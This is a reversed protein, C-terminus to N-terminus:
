KGSRDDVKPVNVPKLGKEIWDFGKPDTATAQPQVQISDPVAKLEAKLTEIEKALAARSEDLKALDEEKREITRALDTKKGTALAEPHAEAWVNVVRLVEERAKKLANFTWSRSDYSGRRYMSEDDYSQAKFAGTKPDLACFLRYRYEVRNVTLFQETKKGDDRDCDFLIRDASLVRLTGEGFATSVKFTPTDSM